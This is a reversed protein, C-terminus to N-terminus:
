RVSFLGDWAKIQSFSFLQASVQKLYRLVVGLDDQRTKSVTIQKRCCKYCKESSKIIMHHPGKPWTPALMNLKQITFLMFFHHSFKFFVNSSLSFISSFLLTATCSYIIWFTKNEMECVQVWRFLEDSLIQWSVNCRHVDAQAYTSIRRVKGDKQCEKNWGMM